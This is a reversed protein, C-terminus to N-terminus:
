GKWEKEDLPPYGHFEKGEYISNPDFSKLDQLSIKYSEMTEFIELIKNYKVKKIIIKKSEEILKKFERPNFNLEPAAVSFFLKIFKSVKEKPFPFNYIREIDNETLEVDLSITKFSIDPTKIRLVIQKAINTLIFVGQGNINFVLVNENVLFANTIKYEEIFQQLLTSFIEMERGQRLFTTFFVVDSLFIPPEGFNYFQPSIFFAQSISNVLDSRLGFRKMEIMAVNRQKVGYLAAIDEQSLGNLLRFFRILGGKTMTYEMTISYYWLGDLVISYLCFYYFIVLSLSFM